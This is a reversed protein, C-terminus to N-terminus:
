SPDPWIWLPYRYAESVAPARDLDPRSEVEARQELPWRHGTGAYSPTDLVPAYFTELILNERWAKSFDNAEWADNRRQVHWLGESLYQDERSVRVLAVPPHAAWREVRDRSLSRLQDGSYRSRFTGIRPERVEYGVHVSVVFFAFAVVALGAALGVRVTSQQRFGLTLRRSPDVGVAFLLGCATAVLDLTIDRVEGARIPIFWQFWEDMIGVILGALMPLVILSSDDASASIGSQRFARYFLWALLGYEVFHFCETFSLSDFVIYLGGLCVSSLLALYRLSRRERIRVLAAVLSAAIPVVTAAIGLMRSQPGWTTSVASFLQQLFPASLVVTVSAAVAVIFRLRHM